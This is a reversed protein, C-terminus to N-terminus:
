RNCMSLKMHYYSVEPIKAKLTRLMKGDWEKKHLEVKEITEKDPGEIQTWNLKVKNNLLKIINDETTQRRVGKIKTIEVITKGENLLTEYSKKSPSPTKVSEKDLEKNYM